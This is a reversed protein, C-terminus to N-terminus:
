IKVEVTVGQGARAKAPVSSLEIGVAYQVVTTSSQTQPGQATTESTSSVPVPAISVVEGTVTKGLSDFTVSAKQGKKLRTTDAETFDATVTLDSLDTLTVVSTGAQAEAGKTASVATVTGAFPAVIKTGTLARDAKNYANRAQVYKAYASKYATDSTSKAGAKDLADGAETLGLYAAHVNQQAETSDVRAIVDGKGVKDGAEVNLVTVTGATTFSLDRVRAAEVTGSASVSGSAAVAAASVGPDPTAAATAPSSGDGGGFVAVGAGVLAIGLVGGAIATKKRNLSGM